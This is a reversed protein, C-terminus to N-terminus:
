LKKALAGAETLGVMDTISDVIGHKGGLIGPYKDLIAIMGDRDPYCLCQQALERNVKSRQAGPTGIQDQWHDFEARQPARFVMSSGDPAQIEVLRDGHKQKLDSVVEPTIAM